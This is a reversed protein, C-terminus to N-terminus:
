AAARREIASLSELLRSAAPAGPNNPSGTLLGRRSSLLRVDQVPSAHHHQSDLARRAVPTGAVGPKEIAVGMCSLRGRSARSSANCLLARAAADPM